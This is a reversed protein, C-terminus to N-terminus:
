SPLAAGTGGEENGWKKDALAKAARADRSSVQQFVDIPLGAMRSLLHAVGATEGVGLEEVAIMDAVTPERLTLMTIGGGAEIPTRLTYEITDKTM